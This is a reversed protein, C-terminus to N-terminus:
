EDLDKGEKKKLERIKIKKKSKVDQLALIVTNHIIYDLQEMIDEKSVGDLEFCSKIRLKIKYRKLEKM